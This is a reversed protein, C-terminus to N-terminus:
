QNNKNNNNSNNKTSIADSLKRGFSGTERSTKKTIKKSGRAGRQQLGKLGDYGKQLNKMLEMSETNLVSTGSRVDGLGTGGVLLAAVSSLKAFFAAFIFMLFAAKIMTFVIEGLRSGDESAEFVSLKPIPIGLYKINKKEASIEQLICYMSEKAEISSCDIIKPSTLGDGKYEVDGAITGDFITILLGLYAFLIFPQLSFSLLNSWWKKFINNTKKFLSMTITIPSLYILIVISMTSLLFMHLARITIVILYFAFIMAAFMFLIGFGGTFFGALIFLLLNPVTAGPTFDLAKAIKCDLMDWIHLYEKDKPYQPNQYRSNSFRDEKYNFRPFQCGDLKKDLSISANTPTINININDLAVPTTEIQNDSNLSILVKEINIDNDNINQVEFKSNKIYDIEDLNNITIIDGIEIKSSDDVKIDISSNSNSIEIIDAHHKETKIVLNSIAVSGRFLGEFFTDQWATSLAFYMVLGLKIIFTTIEKRKFFGQGSLITYGIVTISAVLVLKIANRLNNQIKSFFSESELQEGIKRIEGNACEGQSNPEENTDKCKTHGAKNLFINYLTEYFCQAIPASFHQNNIPILSNNYGFVNQSDGKFDRCSAAIYEGEMDSKYIYPESPIKVCHKLYQCDYIINGESDKQTDESGKGINHNYPCTSYTRACIYDDHKKADFAEYWVGNLECRKGNNQCFVHDWKAWALYKNNSEICISNKSKELCCEYAEKGEDRDEQSTVDFNLFRQCAYEMTKGQGRAYYRQKESTYGLTKMLKDNSWNPNYCDDAGNYEYEIGGYLLERYEQNTINNNIQNATFKKSLYASYSGNFNNYQYSGGDSPQTVWGGYHGQSYNGDEDEYWVHWNRGCVRANKRSENAAMWIATLKALALANITTQAATFLCCPGAQAYQAANASYQACKIGHKINGSFCQAIDFKNVTAPAVDAFPLEDFLEAADKDVKPSCAKETQQDIFLMPIIHSIILAICEANDAEWNSEDSNFGTPDFKIPETNCHYSTGLYPHNTNGEPGSTWSLDSHWEINNSHTTKINITLLLATILSTKIIKNINDKPATIFSRKFKSLSTLLFIDLFSAKFIKVLSM